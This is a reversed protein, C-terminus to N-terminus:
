RANIAHKVDDAPTTRIASTGGLVWAGTIPVRRRYLFDWVTAPLEDRATLLMPRGLAGGALADVMNAAAGSALAVRAPELGTEVAADAVAVATAYRDIGAVRRARLAQVVRDSIAAPGGVAWVESTGLDRLADTTERPVEDKTVLLVPRAMGAGAGSASLGDVLNAAARSVAIVAPALASMERAVAAATAPATAGAVRRVSLGRASLASAISEPVAAPGGIIWATEAGLRELEAVTADPLADGTTLLVPAQKAFALPAAVLSDVLHASDGSALVVQDAGTGARAQAIAAATAFRDTGALRDVPEPENTNDLSVTITAPRARGAPGGGEILVEYRGGPMPAGTRDTGDWVVSLARDLPALLRRVMGLVPHSITVTWSLPNTARATIQAPGYGADQDGPAPDPTMRPEYFKPHGRGAAGRALAALQSYALDGPCSTAQVDRHGAVAAVTVDVGEPWKDSGRSTVTVTSEPDVHAVDLRWALLDRTADLAETAPTVSTFTGLLAVGTSVTNFGEAHAGIVPQDVGGARGEFVRGFRDVVFNYGIDNWGNSNVHYSQIARLMAPVDGRAYENANVTHHVVAMETHGYDPADRVISENASWEARPIINPHDTLARAAPATSGGRLMAGLHRGVRALLSEGHGTADVAHLRVNAVSGPPADIRYEVHRAPGTWIPVTHRAPVRGERRREPSDRDPGEGPNVEAHRWPSFSRGDASTRIAVESATPGDFALGVLDITSPAEVRGSTGSLALALFRPTPPPVAVASLPAYGFLIVGITALVILTRLRPRMNTQHAPSGWEAV